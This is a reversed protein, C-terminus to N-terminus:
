FLLIRLFQGLRGDILCLSQRFLFLQGMSGIWIIEVRILPVIKEIASIFLAYLRIGSLLGDCLSM